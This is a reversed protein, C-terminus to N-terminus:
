AKGGAQKMLKRLYRQYDTSVTASKNEAIMDEVSVAPRKAIPDAQVRAKQGLAANFKNSKPKKAEPKPQEVPTEVVQAEVEAEAKKKRWRGM